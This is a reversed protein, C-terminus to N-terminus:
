VVDFDFLRFLPYPFANKQDGTTCKMNGFAQCRYRFVLPLQVDFEPCFLGDGGILNKEACGGREQQGGSNDGVPFREGKCFFGAAFHKVGEGGPCMTHFDGHAAANQFRLSLELEPKLIIAAPAM